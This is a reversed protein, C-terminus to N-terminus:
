QFTHSHSCGNSRRITLAEVFVTTSYYACKRWVAFEAFERHRASRHSNPCRITVRSSFKIRHNAMAVRQHFIRIIKMNPVDYTPPYIWHPRHHIDPHCQVRLVNDSRPICQHMPAHKPQLVDVTHACNIKLVFVCWACVCENQKGFFRIRRQNQDPRHQTCQICQAHHTSLSVSCCHFRTPNIKLVLHVYSFYSRKRPPFPMANTLRFWTPFIQVENKHTHTHTFCTGHACVFSWCSINTHIIASYVTSTIAIVARTCTECWRM